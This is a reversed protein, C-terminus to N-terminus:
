PHWVFETDLPYIPRPVHKYPLDALRLNTTGSSLVLIAYPAHTALDPFLYGLKVVVIQHAMPDIGAAAISARDLFARRERTLIIRVSDVRLLVMTPLGTSDGEEYTLREVVGAVDLMPNNTTDITGGISLHVRQGEGAAACHAVAPADVLGAVLADHAGLALLRGAVFARDGVGGATVNDGSDSLFVPREASGMARQIADDVAAAEVNFGFDERREWVESALQQAAALAVSRESEAVVIVSVSTAVGDTWACAILLSANLIGPRHDIAPLRAYLSKTPEVDTVAAEGALLLPVKVLVPVPRLQERLARLLLTLARQRTAQTDRHPATRYATFIDANDILRQSINGHLDLSVAILVRDGALARVAAVLDAEGSGLDEVEMAGHLNLYIGDVPLQAAIADLITAKLHQYVTKRVLGGPPAGAMVTPLLTVDDPVASLDLLDRLLADGRVVEFDDLETWLPSFTNTEHSFGGVAIRLQDTM